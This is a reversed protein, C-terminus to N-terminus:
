NIKNKVYNDLNSSLYHIKHFDFTFFYVNSGIEGNILVRKKTNSLVKKVRDNRTGQITEITFLTNTFICRGEIEVAFQNAISFLLRVEDKRDALERSVRNIFNRIISDPDKFSFVSGFRTYYISFEIFRSGAHRILLDNVNSDFLKLHKKVLHKAKTRNDYFSQQM